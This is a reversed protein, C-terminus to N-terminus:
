LPDSVETQMGANRARLVNYASHADQQAKERAMANRHDIGHDVFEKRWACAFSECDLALLNGTGALKRLESGEDLRREIAAFIVALHRYAKACEQLYDAADTLLATQAAPEGGAVRAARVRALHRKWMSEPRPSPKGPQLEDPNM